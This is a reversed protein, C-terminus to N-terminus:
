QRNGQAPREGQVIHLRAGGSLVVRRDPLGVEMHNASFHGLPMQGDVAGRSTMTRERLNVRVDRTEMRYGDAATFRIPGIVDVLDNDIDYRARGAALTAPGNELDMRATIGRIDVVREASSRQVASRAALVFPRGKNDRGRYQAASARMREGAHQATNKDLIFSVEKKNELPSFALFALTVGIAAPLAVKLLRILRDHSGGPAAWGRRVVRERDAQESM